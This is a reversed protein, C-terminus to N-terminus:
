KLLSEWVDDNLAKDWYTKTEQYLKSLDVGRDYRWFEMKNSMLEGIFKSVSISVNDYFEKSQGDLGFLRLSRIIRTVRLLNHNVTRFPGKNFWGDIKLSDYYNGVGFFKEMRDKALILNQKIAESNKAEAITAETLIPYVSAHRSEEHLPFVQQIQDHCKELEIDSANIFDQFTRSRHDKESGELFNIIKDTATFYIQKRNM